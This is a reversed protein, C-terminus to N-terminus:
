LLLYITRHNKSVTGDDVYMVTVEKEKKKKREVKKKKVFFFRDKKTSAQLKMPSPRIKIEIKKYKM